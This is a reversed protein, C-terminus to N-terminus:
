LLLPEHLHPVSIGFIKITSSSHSVLSSISPISVL